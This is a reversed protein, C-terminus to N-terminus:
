PARGLPLSIFVELGPSPSADRMELRGKLLEVVQAVISLGLGSGAYSDTLRRFRDLASQRQEVPIGPGQDAILIQLGPDSASLEIRVIGGVPSHRVANDILNRLMLYVPEQPLAAGADPRSVQISVAHKDISPALDHLVDGLVDGVPRCATSGAAGGSELRALSLLQTILRGSRDVGAILQQLAHNRESSSQARLAVQAQTRVAALPTRLEHAADASFRQERLLADRQRSILSNLEAGLTTFEEPMSGVDLPTVDGATRARIERSLREVPRLATTTLWWVLAALLPLALLAPTRVASWARAAIQNRHSALEGIQVVLPMDASRQAYARWLTGELPVDMFGRRDMAVLPRQPAGKSRHVPVGALTWVQYFVEHDGSPAALATPAPEEPVLTGTEAFEHDAYALIVQAQQALREDFEQGSSREIASQVAIGLLVLVACVSLLVASVVRRRLSRIRLMSSM